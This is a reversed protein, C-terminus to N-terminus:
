QQNGDPIFTNLESIGTYQKLYFVFISNKDFFKILNLKNYTFLILQTFKIIRIVTECHKAFYKWTFYFIFSSESFYKLDM